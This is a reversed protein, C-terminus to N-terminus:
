NKSEIFKKERKKKREGYIQQNQLVYDYSYNFIFITLLRVLSYLCADTRFSIRSIYIQLPKKKLQLLRFIFFSIYKNSHLYIFLAIRYSLFFFFILSSIM